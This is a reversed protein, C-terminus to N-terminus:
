CSNEFADGIILVMSPAVFKGNPGWLQLGCLRCVIHGKETSRSNDSINRIFLRRASLSQPESCLNERHGKSPIIEDFYNPPLSVFPHVMLSISMRDHVSPRQKEPPSSTSAHKPMFIHTNQSSESM